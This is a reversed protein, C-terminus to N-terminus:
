SYLHTKSSYSQCYQRSAFPCMHSPEYKGPIVVRCVSGGEEVQPQVRQEVQSENESEDSSNLGSGAMKTKNGLCFDKM